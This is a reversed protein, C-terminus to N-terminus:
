KKYKIIIESIAGAVGLKNVARAQITNQGERLPWLL